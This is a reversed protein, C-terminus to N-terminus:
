SIEAIHGWLADWELRKITTAQYLYKTIASFSHSNCALIIINASGKVPISVTHLFQKKIRNLLTFQESPNALNVALFGYKELNKKCNLFFVDTNCESPFSHANYLDILIHKFSTLEKQMFETADQQIIELNKIKDAMFFKQAITIVDPSKEVAILPSSSNHSSLYHAAGAGGLGLMCTKGPINRALLCLVSIYKLIPKQPNRRHIVTQLADSDFTLWRYILNQYVHVNNTSSYICHGFKTKWM